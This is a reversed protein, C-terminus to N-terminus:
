AILRLRRQESLWVEFEEATMPKGYLFGQAYDVGVQKLFDAEARTEVGEAIVAFRLEQAIAAMSRVLAQSKTNTDIGAVFSRDLKIVDLPIRALQSLSSYGTGFDDLHVKAGLQRFRKILGIATAEDEIFCSETLELDLLCPQLGAVDLAHSFHNVIDTDCLQRASVNISIRINLGKAKWRAAQNAAAQMVWRGLPGILGSEEAYRIFETPPILGREPSKWRILAEVGHVIGTALSVAPQYYLVLQQEDLAKRLNTDLWMYEAVKKNMDPSFVRYTRKGADKAVYMATDASRILSELGDGHDPYLAIGISCGTYIEMLGLHFPTRLRELIRQATAELLEITSKEIVVVFEDGGLRALTDGEGLCSQILSAVDRILRDGVVHGYHDNVKKFNDLDLFLIGVRNSGGAKAAIATKIKEHIANRNPLGTLGDTNALESLRKQANREETIDTGSCILFQEDAGSGSQVFKNRFLFLRPGNVTNIYREVEYPEGSNYFTSINRSSAQGQEASMFLEFASKGIVDEERMGTVEECLRNFRQVRGHRDLIVVLSNVESVVQEAFSLGHVLDRAVSVTDAYASATGAWQTPNVKRGVLHLRLPEGVIVVDLVRHSTVGTMGRVEAAQEASLAIGLNTSGRQAELSLANSDSALRWYPSSTGFYEYLISYDLDNDM